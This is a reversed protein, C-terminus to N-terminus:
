GIFLGKFPEFLSADLTKAYEEIKPNVRSYTLDSPYEYGTVARLFRLAYARADLEAPQLYYEEKRKGKFKTIFQYNSYYKIPHKEHQWCHRMEHALTELMDIYHYGPNEYIEIHTTKAYIGPTNFIMGRMGKGDGVLTNKVFIHPCRVHMSKALMAAVCYFLSIDHNTIYPCPLEIPWTQETGIYDKTRGTSINLVDENSLGKRTCFLNHRGDLVTKVYDINSPLNLDCMLAPCKQSDYDSNMGLKLYIESMDITTSLSVIAKKIMAM